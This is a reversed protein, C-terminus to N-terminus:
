SRNTMATVLSDTSIQLFDLMNPEDCLIRPDRMADQLELLFSQSQSGAVYIQISADLQRTDWYQPEDAGMLVFCDRKTWHRQLYKARHSFLVIERSKTLKILPSPDAIYRHGADSYVVITGEEVTRLTDLLIYPKWLWYGAGRTQKMIMPNEDAAKVVAPHNLGYIRVDRISFRRASRRLRELAQSFEDTGFTVHVLHQTM